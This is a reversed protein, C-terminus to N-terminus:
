ESGAQPRLSQISPMKKKLAAYLTLVGRRFEYSERAKRNPVEGEWCLEHTIKDLMDLPM